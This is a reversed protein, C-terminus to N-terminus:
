PSILAARNGKADVVLVHDQLADIGLSGHSLDSDSPSEGNIESYHDYAIGYRPVEAFLGNLETDGIALYGIEESFFDEAGVGSNDSLFEMETLGIDEGVTRELLLEGQYEFDLRLPVEYSGDLMGVVAVEDIASNWYLPAWAAGEVATQSLPTICLESSAFNVLLVDTESLTELLDSLNAQPLGGLETELVLLVGETRFSRCDGEQAFGSSVATIFLSSCLFFQRIIDNM